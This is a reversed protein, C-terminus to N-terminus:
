INKEQIGLLNHKWGISSVQIIFRKMLQRNEVIYAIYYSIYNAIILVFLFLLIYDIIKFNLLQYGLLSLIFLYLPFHILYLTYTYRSGKSIFVLTKNPNVEITLTYSILLIALIGFVYCEYTPYDLFFNIKYIFIGLVSIFTFLYTIKSLKNIDMVYILALFVGFLWVIFLEWERIFSDLYTGDIHILTSTILSIALLITSGLFWKKNFIFILAVGRINVTQEKVVNFGKAEFFPKATISVEAFIRKINSKRAKDEIESMLATGIGCGQYEYHCYFCDIYGNNKFEAFGVVQQNLVAVIPLIKEWKKVWGETELSTIPAWANIQESSYDKANINHIINFYISALYTADQKEYSKILIRSIGKVM